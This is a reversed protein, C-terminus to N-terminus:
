SSGAETVSKAFVALFQDVPQAGSLVHRAAADETGILYYPVGRVNKAKAAADAALVEDQGEDSELFSVAGELQLQGAIQMMPACM